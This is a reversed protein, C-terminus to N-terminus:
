PLPASGSTHPATNCRRIAPHHQALPHLPRDGRRGSPTHRVSRDTPHVLEVKFGGFWSEAAANDWAVGVRGMSARADINALADLWDQSTYQSGRDAHVILGAPPQRTTLAMSLADLVLCTRMHTDAAWGVVAKSCLDLIVALYVWGQATPVYSIDTM